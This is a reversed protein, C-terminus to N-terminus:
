EYTGTSYLNMFRKKAVLPHFYLYNNHKEKNSVYSSGEIRGIFAENSVDWFHSDNSIDKSIM